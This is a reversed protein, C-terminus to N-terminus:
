AAKRFILFINAASNEDIVVNGSLEKDVLHSILRQVPSKLYKSYGIHFYDMLSMFIIGSNFPVHSILNLNYHNGKVNWETSTFLNQGTADDPSSNIYPAFGKFRYHRYCKWNRYKIAANKNFKELLKYIPMNDFIHSSYTSFVLEGGPRLVRAIEKLASDIDTLHDIIHVMVVTNFSNDRHPLNYVSGAIHLDTCEYVNAGNNMQNYINSVYYECDIDIRRGAFSLRSTDGGGGGIELIPGKIALNSFLNVEMSKLYLNYPVNSVWDYNLWSLVYHNYKQNASFFNRKEKISMTLIYLFWLPWGIAIRMLKAIYYVALSSDGKQINDPQKSFHPIGSIIPFSENCANCKLYEDCIILDQNPDHCKDVLIKKVEQNTNM